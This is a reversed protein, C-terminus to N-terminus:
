PSTMEVGPWAGPIALRTTRLAAVRSLAPSRRPTAHGAAETAPDPPPTM